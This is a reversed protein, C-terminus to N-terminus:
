LLKTKIDKGNKTFINYKSEVGSLLVVRPPVLKYDCQKVEVCTRLHYM